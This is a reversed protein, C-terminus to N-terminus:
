PVTFYNLRAEGSTLLTYLDLPSCLPGGRAMPVNINNEEEPLYVSVRLVGLMLLIWFLHKAYNREKM